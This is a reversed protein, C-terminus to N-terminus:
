VSNDSRKRLRFGVIRLSILEIAYVITTRSRPLAPYSVIPLKIDRPYPGISHKNGRSMVHVLSSAYRITGSFVPFAM